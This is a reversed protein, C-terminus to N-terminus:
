DETFMADDPWKEMGVGHEGISGGFKLCCATIEKAAKRQKETQKPIASDFLILPHFTAPRRM